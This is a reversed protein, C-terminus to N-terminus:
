DASPSGMEPNIGRIVSEKVKRYEEEGRPLTKQVLRKITEADIKLEDIEAKLDFKIKAIEDGACLIEKELLRLKEDIEIEKMRKEGKEVKKNM